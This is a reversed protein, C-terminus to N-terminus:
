ALYKDLELILENGLILYDIFREQKIIDMTDKSTHVKSELAGLWAAEYGRQTFVMGDEAAGIPLWLKKMKISNKQAIQMLLKNLTKAPSTKRIGYSDLLMLPTDFGLVDYNLCFTTKKDWESEYKEVFAAAGMLGVEEASFVVFNLDLKEPPSEIFKKALALVAGCGAANDTAGVSKNETMNFSLLISILLVSVLTIIVFWYFLPSPTNFEAIIGGVTISLNFGLGGFLLIQNLRIRVKLPYTQSKSDHHATIFCTGKSNKSKLKAYINETKIADKEGIKRTSSVTFLRKSGLILILLVMVAIVVAPLYFDFLYLTGAILHVLFVFWMVRKMFVNMIFLSANFEERVPEYGLKKFEEVLIERGKIEGESGILRPYQALKETIEYSYKALEEM